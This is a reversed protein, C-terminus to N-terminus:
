NGLLSKGLNGIDGAGMTILLDNNICNLLLFTEIEDFSDFYYADCELALLEKHLDKSSIGLTDTERAAYIPALIVHDFASLAKAFEKLFSKTRTYTHPQFVCWTQRHPFLQSTEFTAKIETPHHAYDDVIHVGKLEGKYEFRRGTGNFNALGKAILGPQIGLLYTSAFAGLSNSVNHKGRVNLTITVLFKGQFYLDYKSNGLADYSLNKAVFDATDLFGYTFVKAPLNAFIEKRDIEENLILFDGEKINTTFRHFSDYIEDLDKFFDLHDEEINLIVAVKPSFEWFSNTYECAETLFFNSHGIRINSQIAPLIGGISITPDTKAELLIHSVMGTTTTKGHTGAIAISETFFNMIQGLLEARTMLPIDLNKAAMLEPNSDSIAATYVVADITSHINNASQGIIIKAGLNELHKTIDTNNSDSGSITFGKNMLIEALGSMSIGGIGIFHIHLPQTFDIKYM